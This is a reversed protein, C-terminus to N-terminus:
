LGTLLMLGAEYLFDSGWSPWAAETHTEWRYCRDRRYCRGQGEGKDECVTNRGQPDLLLCLKECSSYNRLASEASSESIKLSQGRGLNVLTACLSFFGTNTCCVKYKWDGTVFLIRKHKKQNCNQTVPYKGFLKANILMVISAYIQCLFDTVWRFLSSYRHKRRGQRFLLSHQLWAM